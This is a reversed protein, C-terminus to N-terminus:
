RHLCLKMQMLFEEACIHMRYKELRSPRQIVKRNNILNEIRDRTLFVRSHFAECSFTWRLLSGNRNFPSFNWNFISFIKWIFRQSSKAEHLFAWKRTCLSKYIIRMNQKSITENSSRVVIKVVIIEKWTWKQDPCYYKGGQLIFDGLSLPLRWLTWVHRLM